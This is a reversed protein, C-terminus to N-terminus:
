FRDLKLFCMQVVNYLFFAINCDEAPYYIFSQIITSWFLGQKNENIPSLQFM